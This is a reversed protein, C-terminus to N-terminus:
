MASNAVAANRANTAGADASWHSGGATSLGNLPCAVPVTLHTWPLVQHNM